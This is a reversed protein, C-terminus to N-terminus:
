NGNEEEFKKIALNVKRKANKYKGFNKIDRRVIAYAISAFFIGAVLVTLYNM